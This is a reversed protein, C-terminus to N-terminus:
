TYCKTQHQLQQHNPKPYMELHMHETGWATMESALCSASFRKRAFEKIEETETVADVGWIEVSARVKLVSHNYGGLVPLWLGHLLNEISKRIPKHAGLRRWQASGRHVTALTVKDKHNKNRHQADNLLDAHHRQVLLLRRNWTNPASVEKSLSRRRKIFIDKIIVSEIIWYLVEM